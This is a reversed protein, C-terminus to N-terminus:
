LQLRHGRLNLQLPGMLITHILVIIYACNFLAGTYQLSVHLQFAFRWIIHLGVNYNLFNHAGKLQLM